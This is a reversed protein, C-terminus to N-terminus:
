RGGLFITNLIKFRRIILKSSIICISILLITTLPVYIVNFIIISNIKPLKLLIIVLISQITYIDLSYRGLMDLINNNKILQAISITINIGLFAIVYRYIYNIITYSVDNNIINMKSLYIYDENNWFLIMIAFAIINGILFKKVISDKISIKYKNILM